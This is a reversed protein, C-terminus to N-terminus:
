ATITKDTQGYGEFARLALYCIWIEYQMSGPFKLPTLGKEAEALTREILGTPHGTAAQIAPLYAPNTM